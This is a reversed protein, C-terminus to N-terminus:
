EINTNDQTPLPRAILHDSTWPTRGVTKSLSVSTFRSTEHIGWAGTPALFPFLFFLIVRLGIVTAERYSQKRGNLHQSRPISDSKLCSHANIRHKHQGIHLYLSRAVPEDGTWLTRSVTFLHLFQFLPWPGVFPQLVVSSILNM